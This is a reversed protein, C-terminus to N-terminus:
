AVGLLILHRWASRTLMLSSEVVGPVRRSRACSVRQGLTRDRRGQPAKLDDTLHRSAESIIEICRVVILQKRRDLEFADLTTGAVEDRAITISELIDHLRLDLSHDTM